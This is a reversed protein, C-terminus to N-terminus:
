EKKEPYVRWLAVVGDRGGSALEGASDDAWAVSTAAAAHHRMSALPAACACDYLRVRGDWTAAALLRGAGRGAVRFALDGVGRAACPAAAAHAAHTRGPALRGEALSLHFQVVQACAAGSAGCTGGSDLALCLVPDAHLRQTLLPAATSRSDWVRM